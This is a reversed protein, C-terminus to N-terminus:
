GQSFRNALEGSLTVLLLIATTRVECHSGAPSAPEPADAAKRQPEEQQRRRKRRLLPRPGLRRDIEGMDLAKAIPIAASPAVSGVTM